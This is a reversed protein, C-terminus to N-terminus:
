SGIRGRHSPGQVNLLGSVASKDEYAVRVPGAPIVTRPNGLQAGGPLYLPRVDERARVILVTIAQRDSLRTVAAENDSAICVVDDGGRVCFGFYVNELKVRCSRQDPLM